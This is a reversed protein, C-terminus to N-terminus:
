LMLLHFTCWRFKFKGMLKFFFFFCCCVPGTCQSMGTIGAKTEKNTFHLHLYREYPQNLSQNLHYTYMYWLAHCMTSVLFYLHSGHGQSSMKM